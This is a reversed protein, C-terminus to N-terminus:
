NNNNYIVPVDPMASTGCLYTDIDGDNTYSFYIDGSYGTQASFAFGNWTAASSEVEADGEKLAFDGGNKALTTYGNPDAICGGYPNAPPSDTGAYANGVASVAEIM